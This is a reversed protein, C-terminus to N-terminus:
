AHATQREAAPLKETMVRNFADVIARVPQELYPFKKYDSPAMANQAANIEFVLLSGDSLLSCDIGFYDLGLTDRISELSAMAEHSVLSRFHDLFNREAAKLDDRDEMFSRSKAHILWHDSTIFHRPYLTGGMFVLRAKAYLGDKNKYDRLQTLYYESGDYAFQELRGVQDPTEVAVMSNGQHTGCRRLIFPYFMREAEAKALVSNVSDPAFRVTKPIELGPLAHFAQYIKERTTKLIGAPPNFVRVEPMAKAVTDIVDQVAALGKTMNDVDTICNVLVGPRPVVYKEGTFWLLQCPEKLSDPVNLHMAFETHGDWQYIIKGQADLKMMKATRSDNAGILFVYKQNNM